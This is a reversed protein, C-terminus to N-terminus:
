KGAQAAGDKVKALHAAVEEKAENLCALLEAAALRVGSLPSQLGEYLSEATPCGPFPEGALFSEATRTDSKEMSIKAWGRIMECTRRVDDAHMGSTQTLVIFPSILEIDGHGYAIQKKLDYALYARNDHRVGLLFTDDRLYLQGYENTAMAPRIVSAWSRPSDGNNRVLVRYTTQWRTVEELQAIVMQQGQLFSSDLFVYQQGPAIMVQGHVNYPAINTFAHKLVCFPYFLLALILGVTPYNVWQKRISICTVVLLVAAIAFTAWSVTVGVFGHTNIIRAPQFNEDDYWRSYDLLGYFWFWLMCVGYFLLTRVHSAFTKAPRPSPRAGDPQTLRKVVSTM